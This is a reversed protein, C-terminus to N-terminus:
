GHVRDIHEAVIRGDQETTAVKVVAGVPFEAASMGSPLAMVTGSSLM